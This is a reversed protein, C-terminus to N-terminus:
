KLKSRKYEAVDLKERLEFYKESFDKDMFLLRECVHVTCLPRLHPPVLCGKENKTEKLEEGQEKAYEKAMECYEPSCCSGMRLCKSVCKKKTLDAMEQYLKKLEM